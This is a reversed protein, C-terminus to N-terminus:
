DLHRLTSAKKHITAVVFELRNYVDWNTFRLFQISFSEVFQQRQWDYAHAEPSDHSPGDIEIALKIEPCYFDLVYREVGYQRRFKFGAIQRRRLRRWLIREARPSDNRLRQRKPTDRHRNFIETM